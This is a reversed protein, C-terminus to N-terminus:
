EKIKVSVTNEEKVKAKFSLKNKITKIRQLARVLVRATRETVTYSKKYNKEFVRVRISVNYEREEPLRVSSGGAGGLPEIDVSIFGLFLNFQGYIINGLLGGTLIGGFSDM